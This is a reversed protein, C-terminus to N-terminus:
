NNCKGMMRIRFLGWLIFIGVNLIQSGKGKGCKRFLWVSGFLIDWFLFIFCMSAWVFDCFVIFFFFCHMGHLQIILGVLPCSM